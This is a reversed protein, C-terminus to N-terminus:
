KCNTEPIFIFTSVRVKLKELINPYKALYYLAWMMIDSTSEYSALMLSVINEVVEVEGLKNGNSDTSDILIQMFDHKQIRHAKRERVEDLLIRTLNKRCQVNVYCSLQHILTM